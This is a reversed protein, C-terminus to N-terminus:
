KTGKAATLALGARVFPAAPIRGSKYADIAAECLDELAEVLEAHSNLDTAIREAKETATWPYVTLRVGEDLNELYLNVRDHVIWDTRM